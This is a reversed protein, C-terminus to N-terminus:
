TRRAAAIVTLTLGSQGLSAVEIEDAIARGFKSGNACYIEDNTHFPGKVVDNPGLGIEQCITSFRYWTNNYKLGTQSAGTDGNFRQGARNGTQANDGYYRNCGPTNGAGGSAWQTVDQVASDSLADTDFGGASLKALSPDQVENDTFYVYDLLSQRKFNLVITRKVGSVGDRAGRGPM